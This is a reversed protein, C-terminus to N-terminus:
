KWVASAIRLFNGGLIKEIDASSYHHRLLAEIIEDIQEPQLGDM